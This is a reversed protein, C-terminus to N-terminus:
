HTPERLLDMISVKPLSSDQLGIQVMHQGTALGEAIDLAPIPSESPIRQPEIGTFHFLRDLTAEQSLQSSYHWLLYPGGM